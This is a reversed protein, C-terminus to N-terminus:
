ESKLFANLGRIQQMVEDTLVLQENLLHKRDYLQWNEEHSIIWDKKACAIFIDDMM